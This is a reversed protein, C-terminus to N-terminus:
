LTLYSILCCINKFMKHYIDRRNQLHQLYNLRLSLPYNAQCLSSTNQPQKKSKTLNALSGLLQSNRGGQLNETIFSNNGRKLLHAYAPHSMQGMQSMRRIVEKRPDQLQDLIRVFLQTNSSHVTGCWPFDFVLLSQSCILPSYM